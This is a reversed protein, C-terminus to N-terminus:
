PTLMYILRSLIHAKIFIVIVVIKKVSAFRLIHSFVINNFIRVDNRDIIIISLLYLIILKIYTSRSYQSLNYGANAVELLLNIRRVCIISQTIGHFKRAFFIICAFTTLAMKASGYVRSSILFRQHDSQASCPLRNFRRL